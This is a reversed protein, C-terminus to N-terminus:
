VNKIIKKKKEFIKSSILALLFYYSAQWWGQWFSFNVLSSGWFYVNFFLLLYIQKRSCRKAIEINVFLIFIIFSVFGLIGVELLLEIFFNHPHSSILFMKGTYKSGIEKQGEPLFNSTDPGVGLIPNEIFKNISFGWMFQRHIDIIQTPITPEFNKVYEISFKQPLNKATVLFISTSLISLFILFYKKKFFMNFLFFIILSIVGLLIGLIASNCNSIILCPILLLNTLINLKSKYFFGIILSNIAFINLFGKYREVADIAKLFTFFNLTEYKPCTYCSYNNLVYLFVVLINLNTSIFFYKFIKKRLDNNEKLIKFLYFSLIIFILLYIIVPFSRSPIISFFSSLSFITLFSLFILLNKKDVVREKFIEKNIGSLLFIIGIGLCIGFAIPNFLLLSFSFGILLSSINQLITM